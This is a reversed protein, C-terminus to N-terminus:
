LAFSSVGKGNLNEASINWNIKAADAGVRNVYLIENRPINM